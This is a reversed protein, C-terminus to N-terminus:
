DVRGSGGFQGMVREDAEAIEREEEKDQETASSICRGVIV